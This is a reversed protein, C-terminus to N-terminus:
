IDTQYIYLWCSILKNNSSGPLLKAQYLYQFGVLVVLAVSILMKNRTQKIQVTFYNPVYGGYFQLGDNKCM